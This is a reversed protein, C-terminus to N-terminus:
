RLTELAAGPVHWVRVGTPRPSDLMRRYLAVALRVGPRVSAPAAAIAPAAAAFLARAREAEHCLLACLRPSSGALDADTVGFRARDEAPLYIRDLSQDERVDRIFNALQFAVGLRGLDGHHDPPVGLLAAMIRGVTGASGDMYTALQDYTEIRIPPECDTRMSRMYTALEELPLRHRAAADALALALPHTPAALQAEWADLAARRAQATAPRRPGDVLQDAARVYGYLAYTAPRLAAPLRRTALYYTPDHRRLMRQATEYGHRVASDM